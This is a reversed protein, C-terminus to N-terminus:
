KKSKPEAKKVESSEAEVLSESEVTEGSKYWYFMGAGFLVLTILSTVLGITNGIKWSAPEFRMELKMNQGAPVKLGRLLYDVKVFDDYPQGNLYCKWGKAPPYYQEPFVAFQDTAASYEYVMKEPHYSSLKITATSDTTYELGKIAAAFSAQVVATDRPNLAGLANLEEDGDKVVQINKIFWAHGYAKPNPIVEGKPAIIYKTNMMGLIHLSENIKEGDLYKEVVEQFRQLKAAHYGNISKHFYSNTGNSTISGRALDLVRYHIDKDKQIELDFAEPKPPASTNRANTYKEPSINRSSVLWHDALVLVLISMAVVSSKIGGRLYFFLLAATVAIFGMSRMADASILAARDEQLLKLLQTQSGFIKADNPGTTDLMFMALLCLGITSGAAIFLAKKKADASYGGSLFAQLGMAALAAFCMQSVGMAMSVARFKNFMPLVDFFIHNLFFHRGWALSLAFLGGILMWWKIAGSVLIAGLLALFCIIAGFYIATGVFPQEGMYFVSGIGRRNEAPLARVLKSDKYQENAGGGFAHPVLLTLSEGIGYSWGFLYDKDLGDGKSAKTPLESAGRITEKSYEWTTLMRAAGTGMGLVLALGAVGAGIAWNKINQQRIAAVLAVLFYIGILLLTYYTIQVHNVYLQMATFLALMGGGLLWKNRLILVVAAFMGPMMTLAMVKTTHGAELIDVNYTTIGYGLAGMLAVRWDLRLVSLFLYMMLMLGFTQAWVSSIDQFLYTARSFPRILDSEARTYVQYSPMGGFQSNTWLPTEGETKFYQQIETQIGRAKDNDSQYLVKGEFANPAFFIMSVALLIVAAIVHPLFKKFDVTKSIPKFLIIGIAAFTIKKQFDIGKHM